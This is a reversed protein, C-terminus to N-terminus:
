KLSSDKRKGTGEESEDDTLWKGVGVKGTISAKEEEELSEYAPCEECKDRMVCDYLGETFKSLSTEETERMFKRVKELVDSDITLNIQVRRKRPRRLSCAKAAM